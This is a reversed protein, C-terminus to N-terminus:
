KWGKILFMVGHCSMENDAIVQNCWLRFAVMVADKNAMVLDNM